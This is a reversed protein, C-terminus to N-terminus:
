LNYLYRRLSRYPKFGTLLKGPESDLKAYLMLRGKGRLCRGLAYLIRSCFIKEGCGTTLPWSDSTLLNLSNCSCCMVQLTSQLVKASADYLLFLPKHPARQGGQKWVNLKDIRQKVEERNM